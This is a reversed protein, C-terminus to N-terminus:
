SQIGAGSKPKSPGTSKRKATTKKASAKKKPASNIKALTSKIEAIESRLARGERRLQQQRMQLTDIERRSPLNMSDLMEDAQEGLHKKLAMLRNVMDGYLAQYEESMAFEAYYEESVEVWQDYMERLSTPPSQNEPDTVQAQLKHQFAQISEISVRVFAECFKANARQHDVALKISKQQAEQAERFFGIGPMNLWQDWETGADGATFTPAGATGTQWHSYQPPLMPAVIKQWSTAPSMWQSLVDNVAQNHPPSFQASQQQLGTKLQEFWKNVVELSDKGSVASKSIQEAMSFYGKSIGVCKDIIQKADPSLAPALNKLWTDLGDVWLNTQSVTDASDTGNAMDTWAQFFQQQAQLWQETPSDGRAM